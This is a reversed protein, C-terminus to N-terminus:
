AIVNMTMKFGKPIEATKRKKVTETVGGKACIGPSTVRRGTMM